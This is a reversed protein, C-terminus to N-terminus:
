TRILFSPVPYCLLLAVFFILLKPVVWDGVWYRGLNIGSALKATM